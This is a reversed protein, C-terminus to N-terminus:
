AEDVQCISLVVVYWANHWASASCVHITRGEHLKYLKPPFVSKLSINM